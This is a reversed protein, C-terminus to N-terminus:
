VTTRTNKQVDGKKAMNITALTAYPAKIHEYALWVLCLQKECEWSYLYHWFSVDCVLAIFASSLPSLLTLFLFAFLSLFFFCIYFDFRYYFKYGFSSLPILLFFVRPFIATCYIWSVATGGIETFEVNLCHLISCLIFKVVNHMLFCFWLNLITEVFLCVWVSVCFEWQSSCLICNWSFGHVMEDVCVSLSLSEREGNM